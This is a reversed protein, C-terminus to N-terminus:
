PEYDYPLMDAVKKFGLYGNTYIETQPFYYGNSEISIPYKPDFVITSIQFSRNATPDQILYDVEPPERKYIVAVEDQRPNVHVTGSRDRSFNLNSYIDKVTIPIEETPAKLIFKLEYGDEQVKKQYLARMFHLMSGPYASLRNQIWISQQEPSGEMEEFVPYGVFMSTRTNFNNTFSDIKFTLKYGLAYNEVILPERAIVKLTRRRQYYYFKLAQPNKVICAKSFYSKGIFNDLFLQGYREWGDPVELNIIVSIEDLPKAESELAVMLDESASQNNVRIEKTHYGTYSISLKYGGTPLRLKFFGSSDSITGITTNQAVVSAAILPQGTNNDIVQGSLIYFSQAHGLGAFFCFVFLLVGNKISGM